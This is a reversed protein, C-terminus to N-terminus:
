SALTFPVVNSVNLSLNLSLGNLTIFEMTYINCRKCGSADDNTSIVAEDQSM